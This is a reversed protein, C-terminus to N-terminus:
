CKSAKSVLTRRATTARRDPRWSADMEPTTLWACVFQSCATPRTEYISCGGGKRFHGCMTHRAKAIEHIELVKCCMACDGCQKNAAPQTM